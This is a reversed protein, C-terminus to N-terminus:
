CERAREPAQAGTLPMRACHQHSRQLKLQDFRPFFLSKKEQKKFINQLTIRRQSSIIFGHVTKSALLRPFYQSSFIVDM